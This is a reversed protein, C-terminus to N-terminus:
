FKPIFLQAVHLPEDRVGLCPFDLHGRLLKRHGSVSVIERSARLDSYNGSDAARYKQDPHQM